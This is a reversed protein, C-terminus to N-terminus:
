SKNCIGAAAATNGKNADDVDIVERVIYFNMKQFRIKTWHWESHPVAWSLRENNINKGAAALLNGENLEDVEIVEEAIYFLILVFNHVFLCVYLTLHQTAGGSIM